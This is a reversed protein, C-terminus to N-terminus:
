ETFKVNYTKNIKTGTVRVIVEDGRTSSFGLGSLQEDAVPCKTKSGLVEFVKRHSELSGHLFENYIGRTAEPNTCGNLIFFWHKNGVANDDWYNPSLMLTDVKVFNETNLGWVAQSFGQHKLSPNLVVLDSLVGKNMKFKVASITAGDIVGQEFSLQHLQNGCEIELQFGVNDSSRKNWQNVKIEYEGDRPLVWSQNEVPDKTNKAFGANMDVDLIGIKNGFYIHGYPSYSHLDLDDGNFWALSVRLDANVNGGASKVKEKISDTIEGNYSWGFNNNWKFLQKVDDDVPATISVLNKQLNNKFLVEMNGAKPLVDRVFAQLTINEVEGSNPAKVAISSMLLDEVGGKMQAAATGNVWLVNNVSVDSIKAFRRNLASELGLENITQMAAKVMGQTILATPRKYNTPAVKMEFSRVAADLDMGDSLDSILTGIVTNKFRAFPSGAAVSWLFVNKNPAAEFQKCLEKFGLISAKFEAGRYLANESILQLVDDIASIKLEDVARQFMEVTTRANGLVTGIDNSRHQSAIDVHFHDWTKISGDELRETTTIYGLKQEKERFLNCVPSAKVLAALKGAVVDYPYPLNPVDWVSVLQGNVVAVVNGIRRVVNRDYSGDHETRVRFIENTGEPFAALYADWVEQGEVSTRYLEHQSMTAFHKSLAVAFPKFNSNSM